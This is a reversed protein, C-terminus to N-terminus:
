FNKFQGGLRSLRIIVSLYWLLTARHHTQFDLASSLYPQLQDPYLLVTEFHVDFQKKILTILGWCQEWGDICLWLLNLWLLRGDSDIIEGFFKVTQGTFWEVILRSVIKCTQVWPPHPYQFMLSVSLDNILHRVKNDQKCNDGRRVRYMWTRSM